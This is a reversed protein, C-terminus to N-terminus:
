GDFVTGASEGPDASFTLTLVSSLRVVSDTRLPATDGRAVTEGDVETLGSSLPRLLFGDPSRLLEFHWRSIRRAREDDPLKLVIDNAPRGQHESLRGLSVRDQAPIRLVEGSEEIRAITPFREPDRWDLSLLEGPEAIGKLDIPPLPHCRVRLSVPFANFVAQSLRIEGGSASSAVRACFNVADGSVADDSVLAAGWHLGSRVSMRQHDPVAANDRALLDQFSMLIEAGDEPRECVCFAGDGATDIIRGGHEDLAQQLLTEHRHFLAKGAVNGHKEFYVTSDVVDTFILAINREFRRRMHRTLDEQQQLFENFTLADYDINVTM